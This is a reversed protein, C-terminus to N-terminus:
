FSGHVRGSFISVPGRDANYAPEPVFQYDLTLTTGKALFLAYYTEFINERRYNLAGDGILIGLGGIALFNRYDTSLGNSAGAIGFVDNPRGWARGKIALGGSLSNSIDTFATMETKGNNWSWRSFIGIDDALSQELNVVYGYKIRGKRTSVIADNVDLDPDAQVLDIAEQFSGSFFNYFWGNVRLKGPRSFVSYRTELETVYMGRQFVKPDFNNSNPEDGILFYGARLAWLPQNLEGV